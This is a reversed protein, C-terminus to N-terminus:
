KTWEPLLLPERYRAKSRRISQSTLVLDLGERRTNTQALTM